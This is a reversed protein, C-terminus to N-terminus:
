RLGRLHASVMQILRLDPHELKWSFAWWNRELIRVEKANWNRPKPPRIEQSYFLRSPYGDRSMPCLLVDVIKPECGEPLQFSPILFFVYGGEEGYQVNGFAKKLEEIQEQPINM